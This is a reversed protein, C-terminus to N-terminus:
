EEAPPNMVADQVLRLVSKFEADGIDQEKLWDLLPQFVTDEGLGAALSPWEPHEIFAYVLTSYRQEICLANPYAKLTFWDTKPGDEFFINRHWMWQHPIGRATLAERFEREKRQFQRREDRRQERTKRSM